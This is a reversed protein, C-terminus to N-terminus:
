PMFDDEKLTFWKGNNTFVFSDDDKENVVIAIECTDPEFDPSCLSAFKVNGKSLKSNIMEAAELVEHVMLDEGGTFTIYYNQQKSADSDLKQLVQEAAELPALVIYKETSMGPDQYIEKGKGVALVSKSEDSTSPIETVKSFHKIENAKATSSEISGYIVIVNDTKTLADLPSLIEDKSDAAIYGSLSLSTRQNPHKVVFGSCANWLLIFSCLKSLIKM